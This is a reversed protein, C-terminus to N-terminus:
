MKIQPQQMFPSTAPQKEREGLIIVGDKFLAITEVQCGWNLECPLLSLWLSDKVQKPSVDRKISNHTKIFPKYLM